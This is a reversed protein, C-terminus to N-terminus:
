YSVQYYWLLEEVSSLDCSIFKTIKRDTYWIARGYFQSYITHHHKMSGRSHFFVKMGVCWLIPHSLRCLWHVHTVLFFKIISWMMTIENTICSSCLNNEVPIYILRKNDVSGIMKPKIFIIITEGYLVLM